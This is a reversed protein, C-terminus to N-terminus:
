PSNKIKLLLIPTLLLTAFAFTIGCSIVSGVVGLLKVLLPAMYLNLIVMLISTLLLPSVYSISSFITGFLIILMQPALFLYGWATLRAFLNWQDATFDAGLFVLRVLPESLPIIIISLCVSIFLILLISRILVSNSTNKAMYPLLVTTAAGMVLGVPLEVLKNSYSFLSISGAESLSAYSRSILPVAILSSVFIINCFFRSLVHKDILWPRSLTRHSYCHEILLRPSQSLGLLQYPIRVLSGVLLGVSVAWLIPLPALISSIIFVNCVINATSSILFRNKFDLLTRLLGSVGALPVCLLCVILPLHITSRVIYPLGPALADLLFPIHFALLISVAMFSTVIIILIQFSIRSRDKSSLTQFLPILTSSLGGVLFLNVILDPLTMLIIALDSDDGAGSRSAILLERAFGMLRALLFISFVALGSNRLRM